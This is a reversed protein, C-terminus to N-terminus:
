TRNLPTECIRRVLDTLSPDGPSPELASRGHTSGIADLCRRHSVVDVPPMRRHAEEILPALVRLVETAGALDGSLRRTEALGVLNSAVHESKESSVPRASLAEVFMGEARGYDGRALAVHGLGALSWAANARSGDALDEARSGEYHSQAAALDEECRAIDGLANLSRSILWRSGLERQMGLCEGFRRRAEAFDGGRYAVVGLNRLARSAGWDDGHARLIKLAGECERRAADLDDPEIASVLAFARGHEDGLKLYLSASEGVLRQAEAHRGRSESVVALYQLARALSRKDGLKRFLDLSEELVGAAQEHEGLFWHVLGFTSLASAREPSAEHSQALVARLAAAGELLCNAMVWFDRLDGAIIQGLNIDGGESVSWTLAARINDQEIRLQTLHGARRGSLLEGGLRTCLAALCAAHARRAHPGEGSTALRELGFERITELMSYRPQGDTSLARLLSKDVLSAIGDLVGLDLPGLAGSIAEAAELTFGGNFVALRSFLTREDSSLLDHSWGIAQRLTQQRAPLDRAGGTLLALRHSM